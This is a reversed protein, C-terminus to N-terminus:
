DELTYVGSVHFGCKVGIKTPFDMQILGGFRWIEMTGATKKGPDVHLRTM